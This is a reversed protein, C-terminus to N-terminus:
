TPCRADKWEAFTTPLDRKGNDTLLIPYDIREIKTLRRKNVRVMTPERVALEARFLRRYWALLDIAECGASEILQGLSPMDRPHGAWRLNGKVTLLAETLRADVDEQSTSVSAGWIDLREQLFRQGEDTLSMRSNPYKGDVPRTWRSASLLSTFADHKRTRVGTAKFVEAAAFSETDLDLVVFVARYFDPADFFPSDWLNVVSKEVALGMSHGM